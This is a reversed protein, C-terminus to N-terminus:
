VKAARNRLRKEVNKVQDALLGFVLFQVALILLVGAALAPGLDTVYGTELKQRLTLYSPYAAMLLVFLSISSFFKLPNMDRISWVMTNIIRWGDSVPNLKSEGEREAYSIEVEEIPVHNELATFTMETEIGFGPRTFDTYALSERTFARYGSLMDHIEEGTSIRTVLNFLYNGLLNLRPIAGKERDSRRGIVHEARGSLVPDVLKGFEEPDYTGDGDLMVYIEADIEQLAQKVGNGKGGSLRQHIIEAGAERAREVTADTSGGDVVYVEVEHDRYEAPLGEVVRGIAEEENLTPVVAAIM